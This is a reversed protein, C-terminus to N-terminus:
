MLGQFLNLTVRFIDIVKTTMLFNVMFPIIRAPPEPV